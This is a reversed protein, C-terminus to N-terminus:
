ADSSRLAIVAGSVIIMAIGLMGFLDVTDGFLVWAWFSAFILFSYEFVAIYSTEGVQYARTLMGVAIMSFVAQVVTWKWFVFNPVRWGTSVFSQGDDLGAAMLGLGILGLVGLAFFFWFLLTVTEEGECLYRTSLATMAWTIGALMPLVAMVQLATCDLRLVMLVGAFGVVAAVIRWIGITQGFFLVSFLLVFLPATFLGAGVQAIPMFALAAFYVGMSIAGCVSRVAVGRWNRPRIRWGFVVSLVLLSGCVMVSRMFHFQWLGGNQAIIGVYNDILGIIAMCGVMLAAGQATNTQTAMQFIGDVTAADVWLM